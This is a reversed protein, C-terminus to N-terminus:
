PKQGGGEVMPVFRVGIDEETEVRGARKRLIVLRQVGLGVPVIMRGGEALQDVLARPVDEPACTVIVADYPAHEAWGRYGDGTLVRVEGYGEDQLVRRAHEALAPVIEISYVRAGMEALVAAQYGSGTGIELVKQGPAVDLKETMYAVIFPQSITQGHGIACPHDGYATAAHRHGEPIFRHRRVKKMASLVRADRIKYAQLQKVMADRDRDWRSEDIDTNMPGRACSLLVLVMGALCSLREPYVGGRKAESPFRFLRKPDALKGDVFQVGESALLSTKRRLAAGERSGGFGGITLDSAIVRHCPVRPAFPNHRLAQGVARSSRCSIYGAVAGYTAVEGRPILSVAGYVRQQFDTPTSARTTEGM